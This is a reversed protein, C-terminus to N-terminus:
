ALQDKIEEVWNAIREDNDENVDLALGVFKGDVVSESDTYNYTSADVAGILKAGSNEVVKYIESMGGCFTDGYGDADGCGFLAITKGALNAQKLTELGDYWDDQVDGAGWTSTGLLLNDYEELLAANVDAVNKIDAGLKGAIDEAYAQLSGTTSGFVVLTKKM